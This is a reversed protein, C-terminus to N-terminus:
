ATDMPAVRFRKLRLANGVVTVSSLAMAAAALVPDLLRGTFPYLLGMAVPILLVNYAFAWFLNQKINRMTARSLALATPIGGLSGRMLTVDAAEMAVDTGTGIALGVDAQALAPADNIGDGVMAVRQGAAQLEKVKASKQDPLVEALVHRIGAQRAIADATRQNDGTLMWVDLGLQELAMVAAASDPKLTDAVAILGAAADDLAVFMPTKGDAALIAAAEALEGLELGRAQMMALNGLAVRRDGVQAELGQGPFAVFGTPETLGLGATRAHAVIAEGLPHESGREASAALRLLEDSSLAGMGQAVVVDTVRPQGATLTGTKDLVVATVGHATELASASRFLVGLEAGRGTGVMIATPTALGLACPCAIILVSISTLLAFQFRPEPGLLFWGLFTLAATILVAPVFYAAVTDALRQIPAKSGQAEQILRVIQALATDRGVKTARFQFSGTKNLTAGIVEDGPGKDVPLSEGTLMSEDLASAGTVVVGDVPVKEGPRVLILDGVVLEAVPLDLEAGDRLVRATRAQLGMLKKIAASTGAKARAEMYKGLLILAIIMASTDFYLPVAMSSMAMNADHVGVTFLTPALVAAVSTFFAASTGVAILTNMNTTHHRGAAIAGRYFQAGAWFQVPTALVLQFWPNALWAPVWAWGLMPGLMGLMLTGAVALSFVLKVQLTKLERRHEAEVVDEGEASLEGPAAVPRAGYGAEIVARTLDAVSVTTPVYVVTATEAAFNVGASVVGPLRKLSVEVTRVCSACTMGGIALTTTTTPVDYGLGQVAAVLGAPQVLAPDYAVQATEAAFNVECGSVGATRALGKEVTRVCSACTM